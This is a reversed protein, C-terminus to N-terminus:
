YSQFCDCNESSAAIKLVCKSLITRAATRSEIRGPLFGDQDFATNFLTSLLLIVSFSKM